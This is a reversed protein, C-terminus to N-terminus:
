KCVSNYLSQLETKHKREDHLIHKFNCPRGIALKCAKTLKNYEKEAKAEDKISDRLVKCFKAIRKKVM